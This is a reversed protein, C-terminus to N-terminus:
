RLIKSLLIESCGKKYQADAILVENNKASTGLNKIINKTDKIQINISTVQSQTYNDIADYFNQLEAEVIADLQDTLADVFERYLSDIFENYAELKKEGPKSEVLAACHHDSLSIRARIQNKIKEVKSQVADHNYSLRAADIGPFQETLSKIQENLTDFIGSVLRDQASNFLQEFMKRLEELEQVTNIVEKTSAKDKDYAETKSIKAGKRKFSAKMESYGDAIAKGVNRATEVTKSVVTSVGKVVAATASKIGSFVNGWFGM